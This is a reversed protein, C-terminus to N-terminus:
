KGTAANGIQVEPQSIEIQDLRRGTALLLHGIAHLAGRAAQLLRHPRGSDLGALLRDQEAQRLYENMQQTRIKMIVYDNQYFM